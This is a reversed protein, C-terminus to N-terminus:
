HAAMNYWGMANIHDQSLKEVAYQYNGHGQDLSKVFWSMAKSYDLSIKSTRSQAKFYDQEIGQLLGAIIRRYELDTETADVYAQAGASGQEASKIDCSLAAQVVLLGGGYLCGLGCQGTADKNPPMVGAAVQASPCESNAKTLLSNLIDLTTATDDQDFQVAM